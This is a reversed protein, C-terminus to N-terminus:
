LPEKSITFNNVSALTLHAFLWKTQQIHSINDNYGGLDISITVEDGLTEEIHWKHGRIHKKNTM